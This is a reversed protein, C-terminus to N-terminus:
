KETKPQNALYYEECKKAYEIEKKTAKRRMYKEFDRADEGELIIPETPHM